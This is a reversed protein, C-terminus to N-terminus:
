NRRWRRSSRFSAGSTAASIAAFVQDLSDTANVTVKQGNVSFTGATIAVTTPLSAVTLGSVDDTASMPQGINSTGDRHAVTALQSVAITYSGSPTGPAATMGWTSGSTTSVAQRGTFLTPSNLATVATQLATVNTTLDNLAANKNINTVKEANLTDIPANQVAMIQNIFTKWDFGSVLGSLSLDM